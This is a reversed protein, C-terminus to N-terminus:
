MPTIGYEKYIEEQAHKFEQITFEFGQTKIFDWCADNGDYANVAMRFEDDSRMRHIYSVASEVSM